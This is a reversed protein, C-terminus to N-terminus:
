KSLPAEYGEPTFGKRLMWQAFTHINFSYYRRGDKRHSSYYPLTKIKPALSIAKGQLMEPYRPNEREGSHSRIGQRTLLYEALTKAQWETVPITRESQTYREQLKEWICFILDTMESSEDESTYEEFSKSLFSKGLEYYEEGADKLTTLLPRAIDARRNNFETSVELNSIRSYNEVAWIRMEHKLWEFQDNPIDEMKTLSASEPKSLMQVFITRSKSSSQQIWSLDVCNVVMPCYTRFMKPVKKKGEDETRGVPRGEEFSTDYLQIFENQADKGINDFNDIVVMGAAAEVQRFLYSKTADASTIPNVALKTMLNTQTSKGSDSMGMFVMRPFQKYAVFMYSSLIYAAIVIHAAEDPHWALTKNLKVIEEILRKTSLPPVPTIKKARLYTLLYKRNWTESGISCYEKGINYGLTELTEKGIRLEGDYVAMVPEQTVSAAIVGFYLKGGKIGMGFRDPLVIENTLIDEPSAYQKEPPLKKTLINLASDSVEHPLELNDRWNNFEQEGHLGNTKMFAKAIKAADYIGDTKLSDNTM